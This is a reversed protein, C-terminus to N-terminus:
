DDRYLTMDGIYLYGNNSDHRFKHTQSGQATTITIRDGNIKYTGQSHSNGFQGLSTGPVDATVSSQGNTTFNGHGDIYVKTETSASVRSGSYGTSRRSSYVVWWGALADSQQAPGPTKNNVPAPTTPTFTTNIDLAAAVSKLAKDGINIDKTETIAAMTVGANQENIVTVTRVRVNLGTGPQQLNYIGEIAKKKGIKINRLQTTQPVQFGLEQLFATNRNQINQKTLNTGAAVIFIAGATEHSYLTLTNEHGLLIWGSPLQYAAPTVGFTHQLQNNAAQGYATVISLYIIVVCYRISERM